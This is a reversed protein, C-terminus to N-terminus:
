NDSNEGPQINSGETEPIPERSDRDRLSHGNALSVHLKINDGDKGTLEQKDKQSLYQKGLWILMSVNGAKAQEYQFRRLSTKLRDHGEKIIHVYSRQLTKTSCGVFSAIEEHTCGIAALKKITEEDLEKKPRGGKNKIEKDM